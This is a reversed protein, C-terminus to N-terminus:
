KGNLQNAIRKSVLLVATRSICLQFYYEYWSFCRELFINHYTYRVRQYPVDRIM